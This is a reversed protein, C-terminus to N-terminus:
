TYKGTLINRELFRNVSQLQQDVWPSFCSSFVEAAYEDRWDEHPM